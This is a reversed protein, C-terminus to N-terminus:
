EKCEFRKYAEMNEKVTTEDNAGGAFFEFAYKPLRERAYTEFDALCLPEM